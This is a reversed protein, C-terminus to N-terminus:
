KTAKAQKAAEIVNTLTSPDNIYDANPYFKGDVIVYPTGQVKPSDSNPLPGTLASSTAKAAWDIYPMDTICTSTESSIGVGKLIDKVTRISTKTAYGKAVNEDPQQAYLESNAKWWKDPENAAICASANAAVASYNSLFALPHYEVTVDGSKVYNELISSQAAEFKKCYPCSYDLYVVVNVKDPNQTTPTPESGKAIAPTSVPTTSGDFLVGDSVMNKPNIQEVPPKNSALIISLVIGVVALVGLLVGIKTWISRIKRRKKEQELQLKAKERAAERRENKTLKEAM